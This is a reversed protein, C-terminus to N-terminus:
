LGGWKGMGFCMLARLIWLALAPCHLRAQPLWLRRRARSDAGAGWGWVCMYKTNHNFLLVSTASHSSTFTSFLHLFAPFISGEGAGPVGWGVM